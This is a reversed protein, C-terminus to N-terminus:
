FEVWRGGFWMMGALDADESRRGGNPRFINPDLPELSGLARAKSNPIYPVSSGADWPKGTWRLDFWDVHLDAFLFQGGGAHNNDGAWEWTGAATRWCGNVCEDGYIVRVPRPRRPIGAQSITGADYYYSPPQPAGARGPATDYRGCNLFDKNDPDFAVIDDTSPCQFLYTKTAYNPYLTSLSGTPDSADPADSFVSHVAWPWDDGYDGRYLAFAMGVQRIRQLCQAKQASLRGKELAPILMTGIIIIIVLVVCFEIATFARKM